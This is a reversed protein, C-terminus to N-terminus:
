APRASIVALSSKRRSVRAAARPTKQGGGARSAPAQAYCPLQHKRYLDYIVATECHDVEARTAFREVILDRLHQIDRVAVHVQLDTVGSVHFVGLVEPLSLMHAYLRRFADRSHKVLRIAVLAELTIGLASADVDAHHGKLVGARSLARVRELCSSPALHVKAALEKNTLRANNQLEVLIEFDTRDM